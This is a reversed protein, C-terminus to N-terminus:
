AKHSFNARLCRDICAMCVMAKTPYVPRNSSGAGGVSGLM